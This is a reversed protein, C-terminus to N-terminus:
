VTVGYYNFYTNKYYLSYWTHLSENLNVKFQFFKSKVPTRCIHCTHVISVEKIKKHCKKCSTHGCKLTVNKRGDEFCIPCNLTSFIMM